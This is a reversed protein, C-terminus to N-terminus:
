VRTQSTPCPLVELSDHREGWYVEAGAGRCHQRTSRAARADGHRVHRVQLSGLLAVHQLHAATGALFRCAPNIRCPNLRHALKSSQLGPHKLLVQM